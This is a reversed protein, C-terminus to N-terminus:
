LFRIDVEKILLTEDPHNGGIAKRVKIKSLVFAFTERQYGPSIQFFIGQNSRLYRRACGQLLCFKLKPLMSVARM